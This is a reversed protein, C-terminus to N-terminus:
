VGRGAQLVGVDGGTLRAGTTTQCINGLMLMLLQLLLALGPRDQDYDDSRNLHRM